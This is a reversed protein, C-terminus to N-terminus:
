FRGDSSESSHGAGDAQVPSTDGTQVTKEGFFMSPLVDDRRILGHFLAAAIHVTVIAFLLLALWTHLRRLEAWLSPNPSLIHPLQLTEGWLPIPYDGASLMAWGVIPMAIMLGYLVIHSAKASLQQMFPLDAPLGPPRSTMRNALRLVALLLIAIGLPRHIEVLRHYSPGINAAMFIGIFLMALLLPAM